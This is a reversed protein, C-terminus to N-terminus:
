WEDGRIHHKKRPQQRPLPDYPGTVANDRYGAGGYEGSPGSPATM